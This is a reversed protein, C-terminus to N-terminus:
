NDEVFEDKKKNKSRQSLYVPILILILIGIGINFLNVIGQISSFSLIESNVDLGQLVGRALYFLINIGVLLVILTIIVNRASSM